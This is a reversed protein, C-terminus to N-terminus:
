SVSFVEESIDLINKENENIDFTKATRTKCNRLVTINVSRYNSKMYSYNKVFRVCVDEILSDEIKKKSLDKNKLKKLVMIFCLSFVTSKRLDIAKYEETSVKSKFDFNKLKLILDSLNVLENINTTQFYLTSENEKQEVLESIINNLEKIENNIELIDYDESEIGKENLTEAIKKNSKLESLEKNRKIILKDIKSITSSDYSQIKKSFYNCFNSINKHNSKKILKANFQFVKSATIKNDALIEKYVCFAKSLEEYGLSCNKIQTDSLGYSQKKPYNLIIDSNELLSHSIAQIAESNLSITLENDSVPMTNNKNIAINKASEANDTETTRISIKADEIFRKFKFRSDDSVISHNNLIKDIMKLSKKNEIVEKLLLNDLHELVRKFCDISNQGDVIAGNMTTLSYLTKDRVKVSKIISEDKIFVFDKEKGYKNILNHNNTKFAEILTELIDSLLNLKKTDTEPDKIDRVNSIGEGFSYTPFKITDKINAVKQQINFSDRDRDDVEILCHKPTHFWEKNDFDKKDNCYKKTVVYIGYEKFINLNENKGHKYEMKQRNSLTIFLELKKPNNIISEVDMIVVTCYIDGDKDLIYKNKIQSFASDVAIKFDSLNTTDKLEKFEIINQKGGDEHLLRASLDSRFKNDISDINEEIYYDKDERLYTNLFIERGLSELYKKKQTYILKEQAGKATKVVISNEDNTITLFSFPHDKNSNIVNLLNKSEM